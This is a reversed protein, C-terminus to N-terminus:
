FEPDAIQARGMCVMDAKDSAIIDDAQRPDNIRGVAITIMGTEKRIRAANEVNFGRPIDISPVEFKVGASHANGRSVDLVDVGAEKAMKCFEIIDEITLGGELYDDHAVIRMLIPMGEPINERIAKICEISYRARNELSGGYEDDRKNIAASLFSHPSYGHAAHFEVCDFGAEVARRAAEGFARVVDKIVEKSAGPIVHEGAPTDSPVIIMANPDGGRLLSVARGCSFAPWEELPM